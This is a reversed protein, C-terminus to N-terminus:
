TIEAFFKIEITNESLETVFICVLKAIIGFFYNFGIENTVCYNLRFIKRSGVFFIASQKISDNLLRLLGFLFNQFGIGFIENALLNNKVLKIVVNILKIGENQFSFFLYHPQRM